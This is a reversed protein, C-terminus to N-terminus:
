RLVMTRPEHLAALMGARQGPRLNVLQIRLCECLLDLIAREERDPQSGSHRCGRHECFLTIWLDLPPATSRSKARLERLVRSRIRFCAEVSGTLDYGDILHAFKASLAWRFPVPIASFDGARVRNPWHQLMVIVEM